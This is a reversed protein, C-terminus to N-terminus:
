KQGMAHMIDALKSYAMARGQARYMAPGELTLSVEMERISEQRLLELLQHGVPSKMAVGLIRNTEEVSMQNKKGLM